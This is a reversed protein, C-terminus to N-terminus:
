RRRTGHELVFDKLRPSQVRSVEWDCHGGAMGSQRTQSLSYVEGEFIYCGLAANPRAPALGGDAKDEWNRWWYHGAATTITQSITLVKM